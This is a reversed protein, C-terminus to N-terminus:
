EINKDTEDELLLDDADLHKGGFESKKVEQIQSRPAAYRSVGM